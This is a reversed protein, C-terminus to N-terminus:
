TMEYELVHLLCNQALEHSMCFEIFQKKYAPSKLLGKCIETDSTGMSIMEFLESVRPINIGTELILRVESNDFKKNWYIEPLDKGTARTGLSLFYRISSWAETLLAFVLNEPKDMTEGLSEFYTELLKLNKSSDGILFQHMLFILDSYVRDPQSIFDQPPFAQRMFFSFMGSNVGTADVIYVSIVDLRVGTGATLSYYRRAQSYNLCKTRLLVMDLCLTDFVEGNAVLHSIVDYNGNFCAIPLDWPVNWNRFKACVGDHLYVHLWKHRPQESLMFADELTLRVGMDYLAMESNPYHYEKLLKKRSIREKKTYLNEQIFSACGIRRNRVCKVFHSQTFLSKKYFKESSYGSVLKLIQTFGKECLDHEIRRRARIDKTQKIYLRYIHPQGCRRQMSKSLSLFVNLIYPHNFQKCIEYLIDDPLHDLMIM